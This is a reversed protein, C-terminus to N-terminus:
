EGSGLLVVLFAVLFAIADMTGGLAYLAVVLLVLVVTLVLMM